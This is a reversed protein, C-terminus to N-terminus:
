MAYESTASYNEKPLLLPFFSNPSNLFNMPFLNQFTTALQLQMCYKGENGYLDLDKSSGLFGTLLNNKNSYPNTFEMNEIADGWLVIASNNEERSTTRIM